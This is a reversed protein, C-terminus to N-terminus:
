KATESNRKATKTKGRNDRRYPMEHRKLFASKFGDFAGNGSESEYLPWGQKAAEANVKAQLELDTLKSPDCNDLMWEGRETKCQSVTKLEIAGRRTDDLEPLVNLELLWNVVLGLRDAEYDRYEAIKQGRRFSLYAESAGHPPSEIVGTTNTPEPLLFEAVAYPIVIRDIRKVSGFSEVIAAVEDPLREETQLSQLLSGLTEQRNDIEHEVDTINWGKLDIARLSEVLTRLQQPTTISRM